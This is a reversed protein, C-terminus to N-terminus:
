RTNNARDVAVTLATLVQEARPGTATLAFRRSEPGTHQITIQLHDDPLCESVRCAWEILCLWESSHLYEESGIALFEDSGGLRWTDFHAVPIRGDTYLQLLVFTPSSVQEDDIGLARCLARAFHTKGAGLEGDLAITFGPSLQAALAEALRQTDAESDCAVSLPPTM